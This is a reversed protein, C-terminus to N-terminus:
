DQGLIEREVLLARAHDAGRWLHADLGVSAGADVNDQRDDLYVVREAPVGLHLVADEFAAADPKSLQTFCSFRQVSIMESWTQNDFTRALSLPANSLVGMQVGARSLERLLHMVPHTLRAWRQIDAAVLQELVAPTVRPGGADDSVRQWYTVDDGTRDYEPRHVKVADIVSRLAEGETPLGLLRAVITVVPGDSALTGGVDFLVARDTEPANPATVRHM